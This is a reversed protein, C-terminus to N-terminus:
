EIVKEKLKEPAIVSIYGKDTKVIGENKLSSLVRTISERSTGVMSALEQHTASILVETNNECFACDEEKVLNFLMSVTRFYTDKLALDAVRAQAKRLRKGLLRMMKLAVHPNGVLYEDFREKTIVGVITDEMVEATAPYPGDDFLVVEGFINGSKMIHLIQERGDYSDKAIKVKGKKVYFMAEAPEGQYFIFSGQSFERLSALGAFKKLESISM